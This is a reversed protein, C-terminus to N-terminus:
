CETQNLTDVGRDPNGYYALYDQSCYNMKHKVDSYYIRYKFHESSNIESGRLIVPVTITADPALTVLSEKNDIQKKNVKELQILNIVGVKNGFNKVSFVINFEDKDKKLEGHITDVAIFPRQEARDKIYLYLSIGGIIVGVITFIIVSFQILAGILVKCRKLHLGFFFKSNYYKGCRPCEFRSAM